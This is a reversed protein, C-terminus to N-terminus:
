NTVISVKAPQLWDTGMRAHPYCLRLPIEGCIDFADPLINLAHKPDHFFPPLYQIIPEQIVIHHYAFIYM